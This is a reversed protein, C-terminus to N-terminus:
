QKVGNIYVVGNLNIEGNGMTINAAEDKQGIVLKDSDTAPLSQTFPNLGGVVVADDISLMRESPQGKTEYMIGDIDRQAFAVFVHDGKQYPVRIYFEATQIALVPVNVIFDESPLLKIDAKMKEGDFAEIQGIACTNLGSKLNHKFNQFFTSGEKTM